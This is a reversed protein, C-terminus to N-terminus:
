FSFYKRCFIYFLDFCFKINLLMKKKRFNQLKHSLTFLNPVALCAV